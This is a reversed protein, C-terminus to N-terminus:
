NKGFHSYQPPITLFRTFHLIPQDTYQFRSRFDSTRPHLVQSILLLGELCAKWNEDRNEM